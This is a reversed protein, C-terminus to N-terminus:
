DYTNTILFKSRRNEQHKEESCKVGNSCENLLQSEGYGIASEIRSADIGRSIIYDRTAKARRDSLMMNYEDKGRSDTHAEIKIHMKPHNNMVTVINELEYAADPRINHKDFDFYIPNIVIENRIILPTIYLDQVIEDEHIKSTAVQQIDERFDLKSAILTYKKECDVEFSYEGKENSTITDIEKGAENLIKVTAEAEPIADLKNYVIGKITQKCQITEFQYMVDINSEEDRNSSFFGKEKESDIYFSFDDFRSNFPAGLNEPEANEDKLIDSKFIDLLGLSIHGDSSFYLTSDKAVFPFMERGSTNVKPGLNKPEGYTGSAKREVSYIDTGGYGGERDSVFYLVKDDASLAPHGTSFVKDNFPLDVVNGWTNGVKTAKYIKLYSTGEKDYSIKNRDDVNDRTFYMTKGDKTIAINAEHYDSNIAKPLPKIDTINVKDDQYSLTASFLDLFPEENWKYVKKKKSLDSKRPSAFYFTSDHVYAGFESFESNIELPDYKIYVGETSSLEQYKSFDLVELENGRKNAGELERLKSIWKNAKEYEGLSKLSQIYKYIVEPQIDKYKNVAKGYWLAAQQTNSNNYYCDGLRTLVHESSDGKKVAEEYLESAKIYAYDRFFKDAVQVQSFILSNSLVFIILIIKKM